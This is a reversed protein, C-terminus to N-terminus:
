PTNAKYSESDDELNYSLTAASADNRAAQEDDTDDEYDNQLQRIYSYLKVTVSSAARIEKGYRYMMKWVDGPLCFLFLFSFFLFLLKLYSYLSFFNFIHSPELLKRKRKFYIEFKKAGPFM